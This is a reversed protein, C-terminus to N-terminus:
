TRQAYSIEVIEIERVGKPTKFTVYDGVRAKFLANALPSVWSIRGSDLDMEDFGVIAYTKLSDDEDRITVSAGFFVQDSTNKTYEVVEASDLRKTLYRIRRDIERLKRKGYHYDANESRDGNSAAWAVVETVKPREDYKLRALEGQLMKLGEPTVYNKVGAPGTGEEEQDDDELDGDPEKTFAKSM